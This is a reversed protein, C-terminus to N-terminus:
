ESTLLLEIVLGGTWTRLPRVGLPWMFAGAALGKGLEGRPMYAAGQQSVEM